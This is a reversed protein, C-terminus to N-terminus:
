ILRRELGAYRQDVRGRPLSLVILAVGIVVSNITAAAGSGALVFPTVAIALGLPVNLLRLPRAVESTAILAVTLVLPGLLHAASRPADTSGLALPSFTLWVGLLSTALLTPPLTVGLLAHAPREQDLRELDSERARPFAEGGLVFTRWFGRGARRSRLLFQGMAVVEDLSLPIMLLMFLATLLCLTCFVGVGLPQLIVLVISVIGLPVVAIFFMTVMWPMTRWRRPDGMFGMLVESLYVVAGLGADSVPWAMSIPSSLVRETGDGFLPDWAAPVHGLQFAAMYRAILFSVLGLAIIPARQMWSSPNYTWGSPIDPGTMPMSHPILIAFAIILAGVLTDNAYELPTPAWFVLPAFTLWIGVVAIAWAARGGSPLRAWLSLGVVLAGSAVDNWAIAASGSGLMAPSAILWLGLAINVYHTWVAMEHHM